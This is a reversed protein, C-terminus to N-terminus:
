CGSICSSVVNFETDYLSHVQSPKETQQVLDVGALSHISSRISNSLVSHRINPRDEDGVSNARGASDYNVAKWNDVPESSLVKKCVVFPLDEVEIDQPLAFIFSFNSNEAYTGM